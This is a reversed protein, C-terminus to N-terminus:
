GKYGCVGKHGHGLYEGYGQKCGQGSYEGKYGYGRYGECREHTM